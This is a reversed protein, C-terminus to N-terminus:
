ESVADWDNTEFNWEYTVTEYDAPLEIPPKWLWTSKDLIFNDHPSQAYFVDNEEDYIDGISAYNGRFAVGGQQHVSGSTNYSTRLVKVGIIDTYYDEWSNYKSPLNEKDDEDRGTFVNLVKNTNTDLEVYHAM